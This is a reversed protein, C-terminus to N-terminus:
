KLQESTVGLCRLWKWACMTCSDTAAPSDSVAMLLGTSTPLLFAGKFERFIPSFQLALFPCVTFIPSFIYKKGRAMEWRGGWGGGGGTERSVLPWPEEGRTVAGHCLCSERHPRSPATGTAGEEGCLAPPPGGRQPVSPPLWGGRTRGDEEEKM